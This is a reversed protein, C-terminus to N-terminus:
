ENIKEKFGDCNELWVPDFNVPWSFWGKKVGHPNARINLDDAAWRSGGGIGMIGFFTATPDEKIKPHECCSHADGPIDGRYECKYCKPKNM